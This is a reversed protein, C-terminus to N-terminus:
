SPDARASRTSSMRRIYVGSARALLHHADGPHDLTLQRVEGFQGAEVKVLHDQAGPAQDLLHELAARGRALEPRARVAERRAPRDESSTCVAWTCHKKWGKSGCASVSSCATSPSM